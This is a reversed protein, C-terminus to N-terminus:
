QQCAARHADETDIDRAIITEKRMTRDFVVLNGRHGEKTTSTYYLVKSGDPSEPNTLYYTHLTHRGATESIPRIAVGTRWPALPDDAASAASWALATLGLAAGRFVLRLFSSTM